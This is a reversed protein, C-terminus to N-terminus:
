CTSLAETSFLLLLRQLTPGHFDKDISVKLGETVHLTLGSDNATGEFDPVFPAQQSQPSEKTPDLSPATPVVELPIFSAPEEPARAEEERLRKRWTSFNSASLKKLRCFAQASLGSKSFEAVTKIWFDRSPRKKSPKTRVQRRPSFSTKAPPM